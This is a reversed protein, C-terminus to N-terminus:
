LEVWCFLLVAIFPFSDPWAEVLFHAAEAKDNGCGTRMKAILVPVRGSIMNGSVM